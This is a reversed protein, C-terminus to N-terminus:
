DVDTIWSVVEESDPRTRPSIIKEIRGDKNILYKQFNWTVRSDKFNNKSKQTLFQYIPHKKSGKVTVKSMMPFTVGYNEECFDIIEDNSGPEQWLFDNSPFGIVIFNLDKYQSYLKQLAEYQFTLGCKSATNVIMVKKGKLKSFDFIDGYIDAVKFQHISNNVMTQSNLTLSMITILTLITKKFM